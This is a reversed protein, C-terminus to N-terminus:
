DNLLEGGKTGQIVPELNDNKIKDKLDSVDTRNAIWFKVTYLGVSADQSEELPVVRDSDIPLCKTSSAASTALSNDSTYGGPRTFKFLLANSAAGSGHLELWSSHTMIDSPKSYVAGSNNSQNFNTYVYFNKSDQTRLLFTRVDDRTAGTSSVSKYLKGDNNDERDTTNTKNIIKSVDADPNETVDTSFQDATEIIYFEVEDDTAELGSTDLVIYDQLAFNNNYVCTNYMLYVSPLETYKSASVTYSIDDLYDSVRGTGAGVASTDHYRLYCAVIYEGTTSDKYVRVTIVRVVSDSAFTTAFGQTKLLQEYRTPDYQKLVQMKQTYFANSATNDYNAFTGNILAVKTYDLDQVTSTSLNNVDSYLDKAEDKTKNDKEKQEKLAYDKSSIELVYAYEEKANASGLTVTGSLEYTEYDLEKVEEIGGTDSMVNYTLKGGADTVSVGSPYSKSTDTTVVSASLTTSDAGLNTLYSGTMIENMTADKTYEVVSKAFENRYQLTKSSATLNMSRIIGSVIPIVLIAFITLSILVEVMSFGTNVQRRVHNKNQNTM